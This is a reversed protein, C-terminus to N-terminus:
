MFKISLCNAVTEEEDVCEGSMVRHLVRCCQSQVLLRRSIRYGPITHLLHQAWWHWASSRIGTHLDHECKHRPPPKFKEGLWTHWLALAPRYYDRPFFFGYGIRHLANCTFHGVVGSSRISLSSDFLFSKGIATQNPTNHSSSSTHSRNISM